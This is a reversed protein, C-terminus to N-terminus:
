RAGYKKQFGYPYVPAMASVDNLRQIEDSSLEIDQTGLNDELQEITRVGAIVSDVAPQALLWNLAVQSHTACDYTMVIEDIVDMIQWNCEINRKLWSEETDDEM